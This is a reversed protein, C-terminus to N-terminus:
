AALRDKMIVKFPKPTLLLAVEPEFDPKPEAPNLEVTFRQFIGTIFLFLVDHALVEGLCVRKGTSFPMFGKHHRNVTKGDPSLFRDPRFEEPDGWIKPNKHVSYFNAMIMADKPIAYGQFEVDTMATHFVGISAISSSRLVEMIVAETYPM